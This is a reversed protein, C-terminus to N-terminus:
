SQLRTPNFIIASFNQEKLTPCGKKLSMWIKTVLIFYAKVVWGQSLANVNNDTTYFPSLSKSMM